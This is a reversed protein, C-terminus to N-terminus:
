ARADAVERETRRRLNEMEALSRLLRDKLEGNEANLKEVVAFPDAQAADAAPPVPAEKPAENADNM